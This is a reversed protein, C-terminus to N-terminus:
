RSGRDTRNLDLCRSARLELDAEVAAGKRRRDAGRERSRRRNEIKTRAISSRVTSPVIVAVIACRDDRATIRRVGVRQRRHRVDADGDGVVVNGECRNVRNLSGTDRRRENTRRDGGRADDGCELEVAEEDLFRIARTIPEGFCRVANQDEGVRRRGADRTAIEHLHGAAHLLEDGAGIGRLRREGLEAEWHHRHERRAIRKRGRDDQSSRRGGGRISHM